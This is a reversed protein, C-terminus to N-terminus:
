VMDFKLVNDIMMDNLVAAFSCHLLTEEYFDRVYTNLLDKENLIVLQEFKLVTGVKKRHYKWQHSKM